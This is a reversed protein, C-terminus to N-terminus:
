GAIPVREPPWNVMDQREAYHLLPKTDPLVLPIPATMTNLEIECEARQLPWAPHHIQIRSVAGRRDVAYLCYRETLFHVLTGLLPEEVPGFARYRARFEAGLPRPAVRQSAYGIEEGRRRKSMWAYFYPLHVTRAGIVAAPNGADLSFFFVGPKGKLTVYTRVNLELFSSFGPVPPTARARIVSLDFPVVGLWAQGEYTDIHLQPPVVARLAELPVPWHIFILQRWTQAMVWPRRPVPWPRHDDPYPLSPDGPRTRPESM